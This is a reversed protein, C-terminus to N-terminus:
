RGLLNSIYAYNQKVSADAGISSQDQEAVIWMDGSQQRLAEHVAKFDVIGTGLEAFGGDATFEKFHVNNLRSSYDKVARAPNGGGQTVWGVDLVLSMNEPKTKELLIELGANNDAIEWDHNHYCLTLGADRVRAGLADYRAAQAEYSEQRGGSLFVLNGGLQKVLRIVLDLNDMQKSQSDADLINGGVHIATLLLGRAEFMERYEAGKEPDLRFFGIELGSYGAAKVSDLVAEINGKHAEDGFTITQCGIKFAM